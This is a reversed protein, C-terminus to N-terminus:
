FTQITDLQWLVFFIQKMVQNLEIKNETASGPSLNLFIPFYLLFNDMFIHFYVDLHLRIMSSANYFKKTVEFCDCYSYFVTLHHSYFFHHTCLFCHLISLGIITFSLFILHGLPWSVDDLKLVSCCFYFVGSVSSDNVLSFLIFSELFMQTM